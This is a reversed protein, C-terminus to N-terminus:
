GKQSHACPSLYLLYKLNRTAGTDRSRDMNGDLRFHQNLIELGEDTVETPARAVNERVRHSDNHIILISSYKVPLTLTEFIVPVTDQIGQYIWLIINLNM